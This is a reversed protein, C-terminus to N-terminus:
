ACRRRRINLLVGSCSLAIVVSPSPISAVFGRFGVSSGYTGYVTTGSADILIREVQNFAPVVVGADALVDRLLRTGSAPTWIFADSRLGDPRLARGVVVNGDNSVDMARAEWFGSPIDLVQVGASTFIAPALTSSSAIVTGVIFRADDSVGYPSVPIETVGVGERYLFNFGGNFDSSGGVFAQGDPSTDRVLTTQRWAGPIAQWSNTSETWRYPKVDNGAAFSGVAWSGDNAVASRSDSGFENFFTRGSPRGGMEVIVGDSRWVRPTSGGVLVHSGDSSVSLGSTQNWATVVTVEGAGSRRFYAADGPGMDNFGAVISNTRSVSLVGSRLFGPTPEITTFSANQAIAIQAIACSLVLPLCLDSNNVM